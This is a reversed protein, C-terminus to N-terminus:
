PNAEIFECWSARLFGLLILWNWRRFKENGVEGGKRMFNGYSGGNLEFWELGFSLPHTNAEMATM